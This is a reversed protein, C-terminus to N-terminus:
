ALSTNAILRITGSTSAPVEVVLRIYAHAVSFNFQPSGRAITSSFSGSGFIAPPTGANVITILASANTLAPDTVGLNNVFLWNTDDDCVQVYVKITGPGTGLAWIATVSLANAGAMSITRLFRLVTGSSSPLSLAEAVVITM